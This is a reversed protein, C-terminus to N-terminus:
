LSVKVEGTGKKVVSPSCIFLRKGQIDQAILYKKVVQARETALTELAKKLNEGAENPLNQAEAESANPCLKISLEPKNKLLSAVKDAPQKQAATLEASMPEFTINMLQMSDMYRGSQEALFLISGYPQLAFKLYSLSANKTARTLAQRLIATIDANVEGNAFSFPVELHITNDKNQLMSLSLDLPMTLEQSLSAIIEENAPDLELRHLDLIIINEGEGATTDLTLQSDLMGTEVTYGLMPRIYPSLPPLALNNLTALLNTNAQIDALTLTGVVTLSGGQELEGAFEVETPQSMSLNKFRLTDIDLTHTVGYGPRGDVLTIRNDGKLDFQAVSWELNATPTTKNEATNDVSAQAEELNDPEAESSQAADDIQEASPINQFQQALQELQKVLQVEGAQNILIKTQLDTITANEISLAREGLENRGLEITDLQINSTLPTEENAVYLKEVAINPMRIRRDDIEVTTKLSQYSFISGLTEDKLRTEGIDVSSTVQLNTQELANLQGQMEEFTKTVKMDSVNFTIDNSKVSATGLQFDSTMSLTFRPDSLNLGLDIKLLLDALDIQVPKALDKSINGSLQPAAFDLQLDIARGTDTNDHKIALHLKIKGNGSFGQMLKPELWKSAYLFPDVSLLEIEANVSETDSLVAAKANFNIPMEDVQGDFHILSDDAPSATSFDKFTFNDIQVNHKGATVIAEPLPLDYLDIRTDNIALEHLTLTWPEADSKTAPEQASKEDGTVAIGGITLTPQMQIPLILADVYLKQILITKNFIPQWAVEVLLNDLKTVEDQPTQWSLNSATLEFAWPRWSIDGIKVQTMGQKELNNIALYKVIPPTFLYILGLVILIISLCWALRRLWKRSKNKRRASDPSRRQSDRKPKASMGSM